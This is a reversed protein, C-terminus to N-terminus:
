LRNLQIGILVPPSIRSWRVSGIGLLSNGFYSGLQDPSFTAQLFSFASPVCGHPFHVTSSHQARSVTLM